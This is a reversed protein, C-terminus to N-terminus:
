KQDEETPPWTGLEEELAGISGFLMGDRVEYHHYGRSLSKSYSSNLIYKMAGRVGLIAFHIENDADPAAMAEFSHYGDELEERNSNVIYYLAGRRISPPIEIYNNRTM